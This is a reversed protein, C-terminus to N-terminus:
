FMVVHQLVAHAVAGTAILLCVSVAAALNLITSRM